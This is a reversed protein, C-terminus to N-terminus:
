SSNSDYYHNFDETDSDFDVFDESDPQHHSHAPQVRVTFNGIRHNKTALAARAGETTKFRVFCYVYDFTIEPFHVKEVQGFRQFYKEIDDM